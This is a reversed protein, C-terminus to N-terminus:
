KVQQLLRNLETMMQMETRGLQEGQSFKLQETFHEVVQTIEETIFGALLEARAEMSFESGDAQKPIFEADILRRCYKERPTGRIIEILLGPTLSRNNKICQLLFAVEDAGKVRLAALLEALTDLRFSDYVTATVTPQQLMFAILRRMPTNVFRRGNEGPPVAQKSVQAELQLERRSLKVDDLMRFLRDTEISVQQSLRELVMAQLPQYSILRAQHLTENIFSSRQGLDSLDYNQRVHSILFEPYSLAADLIRIMGSAGQERVLSDPDHEPPLFAFRIEQGAELVPTVTELAHWAAMRGAQDGDYCCVVQKSYRFMLKFQEATTATGLSAVAYNIGAQQLSIVDMYGEVVVLRPPRNRNDQLSQYLGFLEQRKHYIPTEATNLYKPKEDGLCRGGFSVIRGRRDIIPIIVRNRFFDYRNGGNRSSLLLGVTELAKEEEANRAIKRIFDWSDPAFGLRCRVLTDRTLGRKKMFYDLAQPASELARSYAAAARDMLDYYQLFHDQRPSSGDEYEISLGASEALEEVAEVFGVNKFKMLFDIANGHEKCGFCYFMQKSPTVTFSPTKEHHFPCCAVFNSSSRKLTVYRGILEEIPVAPLLRQSIFLRSIRSM